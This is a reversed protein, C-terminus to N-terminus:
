DGHISEGMQRKASSSSFLKKLFSTVTGILSDLDWTESVEIEKDKPDIEVEVM